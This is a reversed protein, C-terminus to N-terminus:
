PKRKWSKCHDAQKKTDQSEISMRMRMTLLARKKFFNNQDECLFHRAKKKM